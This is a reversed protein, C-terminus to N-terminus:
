SAPTEPRPPAPLEGRQALIVGAIVAAGGLIQAPGPREGLVLAASAMAFIPSMCTFIATRNTGVVRVSWNWIIYGLVLSAASSYVVGGWGAWGVAAWGMRLLDPVGAVLLVPTGLM